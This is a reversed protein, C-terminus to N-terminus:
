WLDPGIAIFEPLPERHPLWIVGKGENSPMVKGEFVLISIEDQGV